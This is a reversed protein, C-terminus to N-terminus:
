RPLVTRLSCMLEIITMSAIFTIYPPIWYFYPFPAMFNESFLFAVIRISKHSSTGYPPMVTLVVVLSQRSLSVRAGAQDRSNRGHRRPRDVM